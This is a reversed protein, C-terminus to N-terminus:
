IVARKMLYNTLTQGRLSVEQQKVVYFGMREFFPRATISVQAYLLKICRRQAEVLVHQMLARGVGQGQHEHHCFFHDILGDPQLDTYGVIKGDLEAIYPNLSTIQTDWLSHNLDVPAWACIQEQTYDRRNVNRVTETYLERLTRADSAKYPRIQIM